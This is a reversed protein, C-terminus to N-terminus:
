NLERKYGLMERAVLVRQIEGAGEYIDAIRVDRFWKEALYHESLAEPGLIDLCTQTITRAAKGAIAKSISAETRYDYSPTGVQTQKWKAYMTVGWAAEWLAEMRILRDEAASRGAAGKAYDISIGRAELRERTFDLMSRCTGLAVAAVLPRNHNFKSFTKAFDASLKAIEPVRVDQMSFGALDHQRMGMKRISPVKGVGEQGRLVVFTHFPRNGKEDPEGRVLTVAGDYINFFSIFTKEGNLVYDGTEADYRSNSRIMSPDSGAGPETLGIALKLHGYKAKQEDTGFEELVLSGFAHDRDRLDADAASSIMMLAEAIVESSTGEHDNALAEFPDQLGAVDPHPLAFPLAGDISHVDAARAHKLAIKNEREALAVLEEDRRTLSFDVM